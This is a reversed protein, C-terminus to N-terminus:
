SIKFLMNILREASNGDKYKNFKDLFENYKKIYKKDKSWVNVEKMLNILEYETKAFPGPLEKYYDYYMGRCNNLYDELDYSYYIIPKRTLIFDFFTSSYDTILIDVFPLIEQIDDVEFSIDKINSLKKPIKLNKEMPHKKVFLAYNNENLYKNLGYINDSFPVVSSYGDRFTPAYFFVKKYKNLELKTYYNFFLLNKNFFSDNRPYGLTIINKNGFASLLIKDEEESKSLFYKYKLKSYLKNTKMFRDIKPNKIITIADDGVKKLPTGHNSQVYNFRGLITKTYTVDLASKEIVFYKAKLLIFFGKFSNTLIVPIDKKNLNDYIKKNKTSWYYQINTDINHLYMIIYKPNGNFLRGDGSGCVILNNNKPVFYSLFSFLLQIAFSM